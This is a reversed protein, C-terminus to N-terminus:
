FPDVGTEAEIRCWPCTGAHPHFRHRASRACGVLEREFRELSDVWQLPRPRLGVRGVPAFASEFLGALMPSLDALTPAAPPPSLGTDRQRSFAFRHQLIADRLEPPEGACRGQFPPRGLFLLQFIMVALGFADHNQSRAVRDLTALSLEPPTYDDTAVTCLFRQGGAELQFSDADILAVTAQSSVLVGSQNIDGVVCGAYHVSAIGRAVNTAARVLFAYDAQAFHPRRASPNHLQFIIRHDAVRRMVFGAVDGRGDFVLEQPFAALRTKTGLAQAVMAAVKPARNRRKEPTTYIKVALSPRYALAFVDGEGGHGIQVGLPVPQRRVDFYCAASNM